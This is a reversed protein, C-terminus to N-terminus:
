YIQNKWYFVFLSNISSVIFILTEVKSLSLLNITVLLILIQFDFDLTMVDNSMPMLLAVM